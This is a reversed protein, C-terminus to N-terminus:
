YLLCGVAEQYPFLEKSSPDKAPGANPILRTGSDALTIKPRCDQMSFKSLIKNIYTPQSLHLCRNERDRSILLGVFYDAPRSVIEFELQLYHIIESIVQKSSSAVLGDDVWISVVTMEGGRRLHYVCTDANSPNLGFRSLFEGFKENWNRSAQKLGYLSKHLRYVKNEQGGIIRGKPQELYIEERLVGHLFATTVDLQFLELDEAAALAM